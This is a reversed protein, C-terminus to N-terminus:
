QRRQLMWLLLVGVVLGLIISEYPFGPIGGGGKAERELTITLEAAEGAKASVSGSKTAYESKSAQFTYSGQKVDTFTVSGDSDTTGSLSPQGSPKSTASVAVGSIPNNQEDKIIIKLSSPPQSEVVTFSLTQSTSGTHTTDGEWSAKINWLGTETPAYSESYSGESDTTINKIFTTGDPRTFRLIIRAGSIIPSTIGSITVTDGMTIKPSSLLCSVASPILDVYKLLFADNNGSEEWDTYGVVYIENNEVTVSTAKEAITGGCIVEWILNGDFDYKLIFPDIKGLKDTRGVVYLGDKTLAVDTAEEGGNEGWNIAWLLDGDLNYKLVFASDELNEGIQTGVVYIASADAVVKRAQQVGEGVWIKDWMISGNLAYKIITAYQANLLGIKEGVVYIANFGVTVGYAQDAFGSILGLTANWIFNGDFDYKLLLTDRKSKPMYSEGAVYLADEGLSIDFGRDAEWTRDSILEIGWTTNWLLNGESDYKLLFVDSGGPGFSETWGTLYVEDGKAAIGCSKETQEGGWKRDWLLSGNKDIKLTFVNWKGNTGKQCGAVYVKNQIVTVATAIEDREGGWAVGWEFSPKQQTSDPEAKVVDLIMVCSLLSVSVLLVRVLKFLKRNKLHQNIRMDLESRAVLLQKLNPM